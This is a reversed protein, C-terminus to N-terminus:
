AAMSLFHISVPVIELCKEPNSPRPPQHPHRHEQCPGRARPAVISKLKLSLPPFILLTARPPSVRPLFTFPFPSLSVVLRPLSRLLSSFTYPVTSSFRSDAHSVSLSCSFSLSLSAFDPSLVARFLKAKMERKLRLCLYDCRPHSPDRQGLSPLSLCSFALCPMALCPLALRSPSITDRYSSLTLARHLSFAPHLTAFFSM